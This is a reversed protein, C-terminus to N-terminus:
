VTETGPGVFGRDDGLAIPRAPDTIWESWSGAYLRPEPLGAHRLALIDHAATVGSGCYVVAEAPDAGNLIAEFRARLMSKPLMRGERDLNESFPASIAGAIHGAIPDITENRGAYRDAARADILSHPGKPYHDGDMALVEDTTALLEPRPRPKFRRVARSEPGRTKTPFGAALWASWGGDLVAAADHGLYRLHWWLRAAITGSSDDYVIVQVGDGIGMGGLRHAMEGERPLPHRGTRGSVVPDSLDRDLHAYIAGPIHSAAYALEGSRTDALSFRCDVIAVNDDGIRSALWEPRVLTEEIM